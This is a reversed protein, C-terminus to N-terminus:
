LCQFAFAIVFLLTKLEFGKSTVAHISKPFFTSIQSFSTEVRQRVMKIWIRKGRDHQRYSNKKRLPTIRVNKLEEIMDEFHYDNFAKDGYVISGEPLNYDFAKMIETDNRCGPALITEVPEGSSTTIMHVRLGYFYSRKSACYGRFDEETYIKCRKIRINHCVPVPFSDINYENAKNREQFVKSLIFLLSQWVSEDIRNLRRIFQSKSLMRRIYRHEELFERSKEYNGSFYWAATIAATMIEANNMRCQPDEKLSLAKILDSTICYVTIIEIEM